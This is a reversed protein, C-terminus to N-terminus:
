TNETNKEFMTYVLKSLNQTADNSIYMFYQYICTIGGWGGM